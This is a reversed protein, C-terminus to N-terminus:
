SKYRPKNYLLKFVKQKSLGALTPIFKTKLNTLNLYFLNFM